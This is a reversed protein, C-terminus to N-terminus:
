KKIKNNAIIKKYVPCYEDFMKVSSYLQVTKLYANNVMISLLDDDAIIIKICKVISYVDNIAIEFGCKGKEILEPIDGVGTAIVPVRSAMAELLSMPLGEDLSPLLFVDALPLIKKADERFGLLKVELDVGNDKIQQELEERLEGDGVILIYFKIGEHKMIKAAKVINAQAKQETLRGMNLIIPVNNELKLTKRYKEKEAETIPAFDDINIGNKIIKIKEPDIGKLVLTQKIPQSVVTITKYFRYLFIETATMIRFKLSAGSGWFWLHCTSLTPMCMLIKAVFGIIAAKYGHSHILNIDLERLWVLFRLIDVPFRKNNIVIRYTEIGFERAKDVLAVPDDVQQVICVVVPQYETTKLMERSLNLVVSEAGYLGGSELLHMVRRQGSKQLAPAMM